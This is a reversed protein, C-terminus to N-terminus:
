ASIRWLSGRHSAFLSQGGVLRAEPLDVLPRLRLTLAVPTAAEDALARIAAAHGPELHAGLGVRRHAAMRASEDDRRAVLHGVHLRDHLTAVGVEHDLLGFLYGVDHM